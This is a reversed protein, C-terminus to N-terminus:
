HKVRASARVCSKVATHQWSKTQLRDTRQIDITNSSSTLGTVHWRQGPVCALSVRHEAHCRHVLIVFLEYVNFTFCSTLHKTTTHTVTNAHIFTHTRQYRHKQQHAPAWPATHTSPESLDCPEVPSIDGVIECIVAMLLIQSVCRVHTGVNWRNIWTILWLNWCARWCSGQHTHM